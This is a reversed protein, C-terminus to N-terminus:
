DISILEKQAPLTRLRPLRAQNGRDEAGQCRAREYALAWAEGIDDLRMSLIVCDTLEGGFCAFAPFLGVPHFGLHVEAVRHARTNAWHSAIYVSRVGRAEVADRMLFWMAQTTRAGRHAPLVYTGLWGARPIGEEDRVLDHLWMAGMVDGLPDQALYFLYTGTVLLTHLAAFTRPADDTFARVTDPDAQRVHWWWQLAEHPPTDTLTLAVPSLTASAM